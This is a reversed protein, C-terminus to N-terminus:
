ASARRQSRAYGSRFAAAAGRLVVVLAAGVLAALMPQVPAM